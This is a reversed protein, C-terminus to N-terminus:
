IWWSCTQNKEGRKLYFYSHWLLQLSDVCSEAALRSKNLHTKWLIIWNAALKVRMRVDSLLSRVRLSKNTPSVCCTSIIFAVLTNKNQLLGFLGFAWAALLLPHVCRLPCNFFRGWSKWKIKNNIFTNTSPIKWTRYRLAVKYYSTFIIYRVARLTYWMGASFEFHLLTSM